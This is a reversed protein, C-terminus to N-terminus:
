EAFVRVGFQFGRLILYLDMKERLCMNIYSM